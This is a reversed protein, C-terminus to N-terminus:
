ACCVAPKDSTVTDLLAELSQRSEIMPADYEPTASTDM